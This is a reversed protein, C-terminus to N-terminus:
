VMIPTSENIGTEPAEIFDVIIPTTANAKYEYDRLNHSNEMTVNNGGFLNPYEGALRSIRRIDCIDTSANIEAAKDNLWGHKYM